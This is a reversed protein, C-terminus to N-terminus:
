TREGIKKSPIGVNISYEETKKTIVSSAGIVTGKSVFVGSLIKASAGIWVDDEIITPELKYGQDKIMIKKDMYIHESSMITTSHAISVNNGIEIRGCADIYTMPHISVNDGIILNEPFFLYVGPYISVNDGCKKAISKLLVYRIVLGINGPWMRFLSFSFMRLKTPVLLKVIHVLLNIIKKYKEFKDRGRMLNIDESM